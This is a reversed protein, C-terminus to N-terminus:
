VRGRWLHAEELLAKISTLNRRDVWHKMAQRFHGKSGAAVGDSIGLAVHQMVSQDRYCDIMCATCGDRIREVNDFDSIHCMPRDWYHCRYLNLHWDPYFSKYGAVCGFQEPEGRLHRKMDELSAAPNLVPFTKKLQQVAEFAAHLEEPTYTVLDSDRYSLYSSGLATMPYSFTVAEFGLSRLFEPLAAYDGVLRSMTVSAMTPLRLERCRDNIQRIREALGKLGRNEDHVSISPADVSIVLSTVGAGALTILREPTLLWGNTVVIPSIELSCAHAVIADLDRHVLPEGGMLILYRIGNRALIDLALKTDALAVSHHQEKPLHDIAFSCFACRANCISTIAFHCTSPGGDLLAKLAIRWLPTKPPVAPVASQPQQANRPTRFM